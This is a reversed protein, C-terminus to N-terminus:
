KLYEEKFKLWKGCYEKGMFLDVDNWNTRDSLMAVKLFIEDTYKDNCIYDDRMGQAISFNSAELLDLLARIHNAVNYLGDHEPVSKGKEIGYDNWISGDSEKFRLKNWNLASCHWDGCTELSCPINLAFIESVYKM